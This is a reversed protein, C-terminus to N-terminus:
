RYQPIFNVVIICVGPRMIFILGPIKNLHSSAAIRLKGSSIIRENKTWVISL